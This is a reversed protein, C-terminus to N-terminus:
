ESDLSVEDPIWRGLPCKRCVQAKMAGIKDGDDVWEHACNPDNVPKLTGKDIREVFGQEDIPKFNNDNHNQNDDLM